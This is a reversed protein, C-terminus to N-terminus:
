AAETKSSVVDLIFEVRRDDPADVEYFLIGWAKLQQLVADDVQRATEETEYRGRPDFAKQRKLLFNIHEVGHKKAKALFSLVAPEVVSEGSYFKEYIPALLLPSDTVIFDVKGYLQAEAQSQKGFIYAQDFPQVKRGQWAWSKIYERVLEMHLGRLKMEYALGFSTTTKGLGSGGFLNIVYTKNM